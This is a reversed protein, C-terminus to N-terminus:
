IVMTLSRMWKRWGDINDAPPINFEIAVNDEQYAFQKSLLKSFPNPKKKTGGILGCLSKPNGEKDVAFLETDTGLTVYM